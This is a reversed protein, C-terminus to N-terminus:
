LIKGGDYLILEYKNIFFRDIIFTGKVVESVM